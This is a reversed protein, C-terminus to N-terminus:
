CKDVHEIAAMRPLPTKVTHVFLEQGDKVYAQHM